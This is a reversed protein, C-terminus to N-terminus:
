VFFNNSKKFFFTWVFKENFINNSKFSNTPDGPHYWGFIFIPWVNEALM